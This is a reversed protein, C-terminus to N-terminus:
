SNIFYDEGSVGSEEPRTIWLTLARRIKYKNLVEEVSHVMRSDFLLLKGNSPNIDVYDHTDAATNPREVAGSDLYMRLQGGDSKEWNENLYLIATICRYNSRKKPLVKDIDSLIYDDSITTGCDEFVGNSRVRMDISNDSHANYYDKWGYEAMQVNFPNTLPKDKTAPLIPKYPSAYLDFNDNLYGAITLLFDYEDELDCEIADKRNLFAVTDTRSSEQGTKSKNALENLKETSSHMGTDIVVYGEHQLKSLAYSDLRDLVDGFRKSGITESSTLEADAGPCPPQSNMYDLVNAELGKCDM